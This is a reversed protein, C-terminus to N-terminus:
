RMEVLCSLWSLDRCARFVQLFHFYICGCLWARFSQMCSFISCSAWTTWQMSFLLAQWLHLPRRYYNHLGISIRFEMHNCAVRGCAESISDVVHLVHGFNQAYWVDEIGFRIAFCMDVASALHCQPGNSSQPDPSSSEKEVLFTLTQNAPGCRDSHFAMCELLMTPFPCALLISHLHATSLVLLISPRDKIAVYSSNLRSIVNPWLRCRGGAPGVYTPSLFHSKM